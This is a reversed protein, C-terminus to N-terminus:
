PSSAFTRIDKGELFMVQSFVGHLNDDQREDAIGPSRLVIFIGMSATVLASDVDAEQAHADTDSDRGYIHEGSHRIDTLRLVPCVTRIRLFM